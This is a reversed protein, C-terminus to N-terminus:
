EAKMNIYVNSTEWEESKDMLLATVLRLLSAQNPFIGIKSTRREIEQNLRECVNSTRMKKRHASPLAFVTLGEQINNEMWRSLDPATKTYKAVITKLQAQADTLDRANFIARIDEAVEARMEIKSVYHGANQQLHFQCRQWQVSPWVARLAARLGSHDDSTIMRIGHLGRLNLSELFSRWHVEAESLSVSVGLLTRRGDDARVGIAVLIAVDRSIGDVRVKEYKADLIVYEMQGLSRQRWAELETDLKATMRSVQQSSIDMGNMEQLIDRVRRTSVGELYMEAVSMCLARESRVGRELCTPYFEVEGRVQPVQLELVGVRSHVKKPKYGNAYGVREPSREYAGAKLVQSRQMQMAENLILEMAKGMGEFGNQLLLEVVTEYQSFDKQSTMKEGKSHQFEPDIKVLWEKLPV